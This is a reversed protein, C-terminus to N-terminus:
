DSGEREVRGASHRAVIDHLGTPAAAKDPKPLNLRAVARASASELRIMVSTAGVSGPGERLALERAAEALACLEGAKRVDVRQSETLRADGGL